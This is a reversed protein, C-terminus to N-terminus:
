TKLNCCQWHALGNWCVKVFNPLFVTGVFSVM